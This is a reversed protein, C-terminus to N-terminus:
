PSPRPPRPGHSERIYSEGPPAPSSPNGAPAAYHRDFGCGSSETGVMTRRKTGSAARTIASPQLSEEVSGGRRALPEILAWSSPADHTADVAIAAVQALLM